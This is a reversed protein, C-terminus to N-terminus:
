LTGILELKFQRAEFLPMDGVDNYQDPVRKVLCEVGYFALEGALRKASRQAQKENDFVIIARDVHRALLMVQKMTFATGFVCVAGIGLKWVDIPGEVVIVSRLGHALAEELGYVLEKHHIVEHEKACAKYKPDQKGTVDRSHFSVLRGHWYIPIFIRHKYPGVPGISKIKWLELVEDVDLGRNELYRRHAPLLPMLNMPLKARDLKKAPLEQSSQEFYAVRRLAKGKLAYRSLISRVEEPPAGTLRAITKFTSKWGCRWCHFYGKKLNYGLHYGPNGTCFPCETQVWGKRAHKHGHTVVPIGFDNYLQVIDLIM